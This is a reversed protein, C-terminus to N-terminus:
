RWPSNLLHLTNAATYFSNAMVVGPIMQAILFAFTLSRGGPARLQAMGYAAPVAILLVLVVTGASVGLSVLLHGGQSSFANRYGQLTGHLPIWTPSSKVLDTSPLLSANLMWYLPFLMVALILVGIVTNVPGRATRARKGRRAGAGATRSRRGATASM